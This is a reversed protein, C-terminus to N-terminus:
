VDDSAVPDKIYIVGLRIIMDSTAASNQNHDSCTM